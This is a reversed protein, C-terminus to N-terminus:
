ALGLACGIAGAFQSMPSSELRCHLREGLIAALCGNRAGGGTFLVQDEPGCGARSFMGAIRRAVSAHLARAVDERAQGRNLLGVVESEAFVTCMANIALGPAGAAAAAQFQDLSYGLRHAMVELFKGTGAACRDNMEFKDVRGAQDLKIVKVDQGGVDIVATCRPDLFRAGAAHAKIETITPLGHEVELLDRGYGTALVPVGAPVGQLLKRAAAGPQATADAWEHGLIRGEEMLVLKITTSGLDIGARIAM